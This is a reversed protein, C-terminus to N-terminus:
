SLLFFTEKTGYTVQYLNSKCLSRTYLGRKVCVCVAAVGLASRGQYCVCCVSRHMGCGRHGCREGRGGTWSGGRYSLPIISSTLPASVRQCARSAGNKAVFKGAEVLHGQKNTHTCACVCTHVCSYIYTYTYTHTHTHTHM